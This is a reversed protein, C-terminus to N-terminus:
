TGHEKRDLLRAFELELEALKAERGRARSRQRLWGTMLLVVSAGGFLYTLWTLMSNSIGIGRWIGAKGLILDYGAGAALLGLFVGAGLAAGTAAKYEDVEQGAESIQVRLENLRADLDRVEM